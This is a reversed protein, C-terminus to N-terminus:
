LFNLCSNFFTLIMFVQVEQLSSTVLSMRERMYLSPSLVLPQESIQFLPLSTFRIILFYFKPFTMLNRIQYNKKEFAFKMCVDGNSAKSKKPHM